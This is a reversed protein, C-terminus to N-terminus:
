ISKALDSLVRRSLKDGRREWRGTFTILFSLAVLWMDFFFSSNHIYWIDYRFKENRPIDRPAVIQAIGTLGPMVKCREAYGEFEWIGRPEKENADIEVPRLARPGVFSMEGTVINWLQPLEDMATVRMIRGLGTIREDDEQAQLPGSEREARVRMSRFKLSSFIIGDKGVRDQGYFIPGGDDIKILLLLACWLPFSLIIGALALTFDFIRKM